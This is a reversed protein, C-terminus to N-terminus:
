AGNRRFPALIRGLLSRNAQVSDVEPSDVADDGTEPPSRSGDGSQAALARRECSARFALTRSYLAHDLHHLDYFEQKVADKVVVPEDSRRKNLRPQSQPPLGLMSRLLAVEHDMDEVIGIFFFQEPNTFPALFSSMINAMEPALLFRELDPERDVFHEIYLPHTRPDHEPAHKWYFFHSIARELPERLFTVVRPHPVLNVYEALEFHGHIAKVDEHRTEWPNRDPYDLVTKAGFDQEFMYGLTIGAAKPIHVSLILDSAFTSTETKSM